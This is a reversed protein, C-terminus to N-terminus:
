AKYLSFHKAQASGYGSIACTRSLTAAAASHQNGFDMCEQQLADCSSCIVIGNQILKQLITFLWVRCTVSPISNVDGDHSRMVQDLQSHKAQPVREIEGLNRIHYKTGGTSSKHFYYGWHFDNPRPPDSRIWLVLYLANLPLRERATKILSAPNPM